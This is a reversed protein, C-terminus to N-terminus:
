QTILEVTLTKTSYDQSTAKRFDAGIPIYIPSTVSITDSPSSTTVDPATGATGLFGFAVVAINKSLEEAFPIKENPQITISPGSAPILTVAAPEASYLDSDQGTTGFFHPFVQPDNFTGANDPNPVIPGTAGRKMQLVDLKQKESAAAGAGLVSEVFDVVHARDTVFVANTAGVGPDPVETFSYNANADLVAWVMPVTIKCDSLGVLGGGDNGKATDDCFKPDTPGLATSLNETYIIIRNAALNTNVAVKVAVNSDRFINGGAGFGLSGPVDGPGQVVIQTADFTTSETVGSSSVAITSKQKPTFADAASQLSCLVIVGAAWKLYKKM